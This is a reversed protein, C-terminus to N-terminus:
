SGNSYPDKYLVIRYSGDNNSIANALTSSTPCSEIYEGYVEEKSGNSTPAQQLLYFCGLGTVKFTSKGTPTPDNNSSDKSCDLIPVSMIRRGSGQNLSYLSNTDNILTAYNEYFSDNLEDASLQSYNEKLAVLAEYESESVSKNDEPGNTEYYAIEAEATSLRDFVDSITTIGLAIFTDIDDKLSAPTDYDEQTFTGKISGSTENFRTNLGKGVPGITNGTKTVVEGGVTACTNNNLGVGTVGALQESLKDDSDFDLLQFNGPGMVSRNTVLKLAYVNQAVYGRNADSADADPDECVAIPVINCTGGGTSRGAVASNSLKKDSIGLVQIFFSELTLNSVAVRVYRDYMTSASGSSFDSPDNSFMVSIDVGEDFFRLESNGGAQAMETLTDTVATRADDESGGRDLVLAAALAAADVSNQLRTRNMFAHNIDIALATVGLFAFLAITVMVAVLGRQKRMGRVPHHAKM